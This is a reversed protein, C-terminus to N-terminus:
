MASFGAQKLLGLFKAVVADRSFHQLFYARPSYRHLNDLIEVIGLHFQDPTRVLGAGPGVYRKGGILEANVLVPVDAAMYELVVRPAGDVRACM